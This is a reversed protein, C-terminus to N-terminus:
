PRGCGAKFRRRYGAAFGSARLLQSQRQSQSARLQQIEAAREAAREVPFRITITHQDPDSNAHAFPYIHATPHSIPISDMDGPDYGGSGSGIGAFTPSSYCNAQRDRQDRKADPCFRSDNHPARCRQRSASAAGHAFPASGTGTVASALSAPISGASGRDPAATGDLRFRELLTGPCSVRFVTEITQEVERSDALEGSQGCFNPGDM